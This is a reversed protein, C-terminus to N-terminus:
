FYKQLCAPYSKQWSNKCKSIEEGDVLIKGMIQQYFGPIVWFTSKGVRSVGSIGIKQGKYERFKFEIYIM